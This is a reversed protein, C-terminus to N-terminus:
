TRGGGELFGEPLYHVCAPILLAVAEPEWPEYALETHQLFNALQSKVFVRVDGEGNTEDDAKGIVDFLDDDGILHYLKGTAEGAKLPQELLALLEEAQAKTQPM